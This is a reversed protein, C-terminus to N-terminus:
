CMRYYVVKRASFRIFRSGEAIVVQNGLERLLKLIILNCKNNCYLWTRVRACNVHPGPECISDHLNNYKLKLPESFSGIRIELIWYNERILPSYTAHQTVSELNKRPVQLATILQPFWDLFSSYSNPLEIKASINEFESNKVPMM